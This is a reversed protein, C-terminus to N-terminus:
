CRSNQLLGVQMMDAQTLCCYSRNGHRRRGKGTEPAEIRDPLMHGVEVTMEFSGVTLDCWGRMVTHASRVSSTLLKPPDCYAWGLRSRGAVGIMGLNMPVASCRHDRLSKSVLSHGAADITGEALIKMRAKRGVVFGAIDGEAEHDVAFDAIDGEAEHDSASGATDQELKGILVRHGFSERGEGAVVIDAGVMRTMDGVVDTKGVEFSWVMMGLGVVSYVQKDVEVGVSDLGLGLRTCRKGVGVSCSSAGLDLVIDEAAAAVAAVLDLPNHLILCSRDDLVCALLSRVPAAFCRSRFRRAEWGLISLKSFGM